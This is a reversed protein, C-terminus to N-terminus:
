RRRGNRDRQHRRGATRGALRNDRGCRQSPSCRPRPRCERGPGAPLNGRLGYVAGNGAHRRRHDRTQVAQPHAGAQLTFRQVPIPEGEAVFGALPSNNVVGPIRVGASRGLQVQLSAAILQAAASFSTLGGVYDAVATSGLTGAWESSSLTAPSVAAKQLTKVKEDGPYLTEAAANRKRAAEAITSVVARLLTDESGTRASHRSARIEAQPRKPATSPSYTM